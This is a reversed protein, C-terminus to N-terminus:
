SALFSVTISIADRLCEGNNNTLTVNTVDYIDASSDVINSEVMGSTDSTMDLSGAVNNKM